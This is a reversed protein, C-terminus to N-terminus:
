FITLMYNFFVSVGSCWQGNRRASLSEDWYQPKSQWEKVSIQKEGNSYHIIRSHNPIHKIVDSKNFIFGKNKLVDDIIVDNLTYKLYTELQREPIFFAEQGIVELVNIKYNAM